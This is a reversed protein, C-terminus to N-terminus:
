IIVHICPTKSVLILFANHFPVMVNEKDENGLGLPAKTMPHLDGRAVGQAIEADLDRFWFSLFFVYAGIYVLIEDSLSEHPENWMVLCEKEPCFVRQHKFTLNARHFSDMYDPPVRTGVQMRLAQVVQILGFWLIFYGKFMRISNGSSVTLQLSGSETSVRLIIVGQCYRWIDFIMMRLGMYLLKDRLM